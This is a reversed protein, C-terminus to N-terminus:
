QILQLRDASEIEIQPSGQYLSVRGEVEVSQEELADLGQDSLGAPLSGNERRVIAVFSERGAGDFNIFVIRGGGGRGVRSVRGRVTAHKGVAAMLRDVDSAAIVGDPLTGVQSRRAAWGGRGEKRAQRELQVLEQEVKEAARGDPHDTQARGGKILAYGNAVLLEALDRGDATQIFARISPNDGDSDVRAWKTLVDFGDALCRRTFAAAERALSVAEQERMPPDGFYGVQEDRREAAYAAKEVTDVFYLRFILREGDVFTEISDGDSHRGEVFRCNRVTEWRGDTRSLMPTDDRQSIVFM